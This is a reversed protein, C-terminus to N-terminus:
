NPRCQLLSSLRQLSKARCLLKGNGAWDNFDDAQGPRNLSGGVLDFDQAADVDCNGLALEDGDHTRRAAALTSKESQEGTFDGIDDAYHYQGNVVHPAIDASRVLEAHRRSDSM